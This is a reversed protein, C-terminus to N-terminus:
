GGWVGLAQMLILLGAIVIGVVAVATVAAPRRDASDRATYYELAPAAAQVPTTTTTTTM